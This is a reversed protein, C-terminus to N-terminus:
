ADEEALMAAEEAAREEDTLPRNISRVCCLYTYPFRQRHQVINLYKRFRTVLIAGAFGYLFVGCIGAVAAMFKGGASEPRTSDYGITTITILAWWLSETMNPGVKPVCTKM